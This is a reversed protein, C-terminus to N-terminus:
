KNNNDNSKIKMLLIEIENAIDYVNVLEDPIEGALLTEADKLDNVLDWCLHCFNKNIEKVAKNEVKLVELESLDKEHETKNNRNAFYKEVNSSVEQDSMEKIEECLKQEFLDDTELPSYYLGLNCKEIIDKVEELSWIIKTYLMGRQSSTIVFKYILSPADMVLGPPAKFDKQFNKEWSKVASIIKGLSQSKELTRDLGWPDTEALEIQWTNEKNRLFKKIEKVNNM